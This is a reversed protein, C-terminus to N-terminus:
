RSGTLSAAMQAILEDSTGSLTLVHTEDCVVLNQVNGVADSGFSEYLAWPKGSIPTLNWARLTFPPLDLASYVLKDVVDAPQLGPKLTEVIAFALPYGEKANRYMYARVEAAYERPVTENMEVQEVPNRMAPMGLTSPLQDLIAPEYAGLYQLQYPAEADQKVHNRQDYLYIQEDVFERSRGFFWKWAGSHPALRVIDNDVSGDGFAQTYSVEAVGPYNVGSVGWSWDDRYNVGTATARQPKRPQFNARYWGIVAFRPVIAQADPHMHAYFTYLAPIHEIAELEALREAAAMPDQPLVDQATSERRRNAVAFVAGLVAAKLIGRRTLSFRDM